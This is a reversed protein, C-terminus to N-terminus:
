GTSLAFATTETPGYVHPPHRRRSLVRQMATPSAAEGGTWLHPIAALAAPSDQALVNFLGTTLFM